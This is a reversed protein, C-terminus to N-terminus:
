LRLQKREKNELQPQCQCSAQSRDLPYPKTRKGELSRNRNEPSGLCAGHNKRFDSGPGTATTEALGQRHLRPPNSPLWGSPSLRLCRRGPSEPTRARRSRTRGTRGAKLRGNVQLGRLSHNKPAAARSNIDRRGVLSSLQVTLLTGSHEPHFPDIVGQHHGHPPCPLVLIFRRLHM